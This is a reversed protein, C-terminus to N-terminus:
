HFCCFFPQLGPQNSRFALFFTVECKFILIYDSYFYQSKDIYNM